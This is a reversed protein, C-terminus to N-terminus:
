DIVPPLGRYQRVIKADAVTRAVAAFTMPWEELVHQASPRVVPVGFAQGILSRDRDAFFEDAGSHFGRGDVEFLVCGDLLGDYRGHGVLNVQPQVRFGAGAMRRVFLSEVGSEPAGTFGDVLSTRHVSALVTDVQRRSLMREHLASDIAAAAHEADMCRVAEALAEQPSVIWDLAARPVLEVAWHVRPAADSALRVKRKGRKYKPVSPHWVGANDVVSKKPAPSEAVARRLLPPPPTPPRPPTPPAPEPATPRPVRSATHPVQLQLTLDTGAWVGFRRLASFCGIRAGHAIARLQDPDARRTAVWGHRPRTVIGATLAARLAADTFGRRRLTGVRAVQGLQSLEDLIDPM